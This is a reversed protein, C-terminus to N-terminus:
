PARKAEIEEFWALAMSMHEPFVDHGGPCTEVRINKFGGKNMSDRVSRGAEVTAVKDEVGNSLFIPVKLFTWRSPKYLNVGETAMDQNCGGMFMGIVKYGSSALLAAMYGSFKAGGSFGGTAYNWQRSGPWQRHLEELGARILSWRWTNSVRIPADDNPGDAAMVVWKRGLIADMYQGAHGISLSNLDETSSIVILNWSKAPDFGPPVAIGIKANTVVTNHEKDLARMADAPLPAFFRILQGPPIEVGGLTLAGPPASANPPNDPAPAEAGPARQSRVFAQDAESLGAFLIGLIQGDAKRLLVREGEEGAWEAEVQSGTRSTWIRLEGQVRPVATAWLLTLVLMIGHHRATRM